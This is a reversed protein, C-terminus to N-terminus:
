SIQMASGRSASGVLFGNGREESVDREAVLSAFREMGETGRGCRSSGTKKTPDISQGSICIPRQGFKCVRDLDSFFCGTWKRVRLRISIFLTIEM